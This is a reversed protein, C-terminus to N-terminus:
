SASRELHSMQIMVGQALVWPVSYQPLHSPHFSVLGLLTKQGQCATRNASGWCSTVQVLDVQNIINWCPNSPLEWLEVGLHFAPPLWCSSPFFWNEVSTPVRTPQGHLLLFEKDMHAVNILHLWTSIHTHVYSIFNPPPHLPLVWPSNSAPSSLTIYASLM